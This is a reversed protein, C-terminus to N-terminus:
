RNSTLFLAIAKIFRPTQRKRTKVHVLRQKEAKPPNEADRKPNIPELYMNM